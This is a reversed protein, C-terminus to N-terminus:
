CNRLQDLFKGCKISDCLNMVMNVFAQWQHRNSGSLHIQKIGELKKLDM